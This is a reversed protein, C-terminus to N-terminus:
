LQLVQKQSDKEMWFKGSLYIDSSLPKLWLFTSEWIRGPGSVFSINRHSKGTWINFTPRPLSPTFPLPHHTRGCIFSLACYVQNSSTSSATRTTLAPLLIILLSGRGLGKRCLCCSPTCHNIPLPPQHLILPLCYLLRRWDVLRGGRHVTMWRGGWHPWKNAVYPAGFGRVSFSGARPIHPITSATMPTLITQDPDAITRYNKKTFKCQNLSKARSPCHDLTSQFTRASRFISLRARRGLKSFILDQTHSYWLIRWWTKSQVLILWVKELM